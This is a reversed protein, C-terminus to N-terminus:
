NTLTFNRPYNRIEDRGSRALEFVGHESAKKLVTQVLHWATLKKAPDSSFALEISRKNEPDPCTM